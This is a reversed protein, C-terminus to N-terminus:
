LYIVCFKEDSENMILNAMAVKQELDMTDEEIKRLRENAEHFSSRAEQKAEQIERQANTYVEIFQQQLAAFNDMYNRIINNSEDEEIPNVDM